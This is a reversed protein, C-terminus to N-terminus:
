QAPFGPMQLIRKAQNLHRQGHLAIIHLTNSLSYTIFRAAPSTVLVKHPAPVQQLRNYYNITQQQQKVFDAVITAPLNSSSPAFVPTTKLARASAPNVSKLLMQGFFSPLFPIKGWPNTFAGGNLIREFEPYYSTNTVMLHHLCQAISWKDPSPKWNLAAASLQGFLQESESSAEQLIQMLAISNLFQNTSMIVKNKKFAVSFLYAALCM